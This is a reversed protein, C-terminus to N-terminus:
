KLAFIPKVAHKEFGDALNNENHSSANARMLHSLIKVQCTVFDDKPCVKLPFSGFFTSLYYIPNFNFFVFEFTPITTAPKFTDNVLRMKGAQAM